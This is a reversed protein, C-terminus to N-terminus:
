CNFGLLDLYDDVFIVFYRSKGKTAFPVHGWVNSHILSFPAFYISESKNFPLKTQKSFQCSMCHFKQFRVSRLHGQSALLQISSLFTHGLHSHWLYPSLTTAVAFFFVLHSSIHM